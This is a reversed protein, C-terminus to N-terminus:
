FLRGQPDRYFNFNLMAVKRGKKIPYYEIKWGDKQELEKIAPEIVKRRLEGFNKKHTNTAEMVYWFEELPIKLWGQDQKKSYAMDGQFKNNTVDSKRFSEFLELLRWSYISRLASAQKLQYKTFQETLDFLLHFINPNFSVNVTGTDKIYQVYSLWNYTTKIERGKKDLNSITFQKKMFGLSAAKLETYAVSVDLGFTDAYDQAHLKIPKSIGSSQALALMLIRKEVLTLGQASRTISNSQVVNKLGIDNDDQKKIVKNM